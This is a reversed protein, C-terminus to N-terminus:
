YLERYSLEEFISYLSEAKELLPQMNKGTLSQKVRKKAQEKEVSPASYKLVQDSEVRSDDRVITHFIRKVNEQNHDFLAYDTGYRRNLRDIVSGFDTTTQEFTAVMFSENYPLVTSYYHTYDWMAQDFSIHPHKLVLSSATGVPERILVITPLRWRAARKITAPAHTHHATVVWDPQASLFAYVAFTNASRFFGEIVLETKNSLLPTGKIGQVRRLLRMLPFFLVPYRAIFRRLQHLNYYTM